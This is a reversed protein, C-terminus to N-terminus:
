LSLLITVPSQTYGPDDPVSVKAPHALVPTNALTSQNIAKGIYGNGHGAESVTAMLLLLLIAPFINREM